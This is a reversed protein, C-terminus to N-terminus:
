RNIVIDCQMRNGNGGIGAFVLNAGVCHYENHDNNTIFVIGIMSKCHVHRICHTSASRTDARWSPVSRADFDDAIYM